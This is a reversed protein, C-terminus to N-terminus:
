PATVRLNDFRATGDAVTYLGLGGSAFTGDSATLVLRGDVRVEIVPGRATISMLHWNGHHYGPWATSAALTREGEATVKLLTAKPQDNAVQGYLKVLYYGRDSFRVVAGIPDGSTAYFYVEMTFDTYTQVKTVIYAEDETAEEAHNSAQALVGDRVEWTAPRVGPTGVMPTLQQWASLESSSFDDHFLVRASTPPLAPAAPLAGGQGSQGPTGAGPSTVTGGSPIGVGSGVAPAPYYTPRGLGSFAKVGGARDLLESGLLGLQVEFPTGALEPHYEFRNREFYQVLYTKGDAKSREMFPESIPYGYIPLGGSSQWKALFKGTLNHGTEAFFIGEGLPRAPRFPAEGRRDATAMVGLLQLEVKYPEPKSPDFTFLAREFWQADYGQGTPFVTTRPLGFQALGGHRYWFQEFPGWLAVGTQPFTTDAQGTGPTFSFSGAM